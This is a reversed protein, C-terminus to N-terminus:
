RQCYRLVKFNEELHFVTSPSIDDIRSVVDHVIAPRPQSHRGVGGGNLGWVRYCVYRLRQVWNIALGENAIDM